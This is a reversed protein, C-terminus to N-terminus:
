WWHVKGHGLQGFEHKFRNLHSIGFYLELTWRQSALNPLNDKLKEVQQGLKSKCIVEFDVRNGRFRLVEFIHFLFDIFFDHFCFKSFLISM